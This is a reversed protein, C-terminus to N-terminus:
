RNFILIAITLHVLLFLPVGFSFDLKRTKHRFFRIGALAGASGGIIVFSWLNKESVRRARYIQAKIKDLGFVFFTIINIIVLYIITVQKLLDLELFFKM